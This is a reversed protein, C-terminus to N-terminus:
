SRPEARVWLRIIQESGRLYRARIEKGPAVATEFSRKGAGRCPIQWTKAGATLMWYRSKTGNKATEVQISLNDLRGQDTVAPLLADVLCAWAGPL